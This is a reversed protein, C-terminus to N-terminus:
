SSSRRNARAAPSRATPRARAREPVSRRRRAVTDKDNDPEPCGDDDEFGDPIKRSTRASTPQADLIGDLDNDLEPCGDDDLYGDKDEPELVCRALRIGDTTDSTPAATATRHERSRRARRRLPTRRMARSASPASRRAAVPRPPTRTRSPSRSTTRQRRSVFGQDLEIEAFELQSKALALERPACRMAGNREAQEALKDLGDIEGRM